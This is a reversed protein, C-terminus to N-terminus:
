NLFEPVVKASAKTSLMSVLDYITVPGTESVLSLIKGTHVANAEDTRAPPESGSIIHELYTFVQQPNYLTARLATRPAASCTVTTGASSITLLLPKCLRRCPECLLQMSMKRRLHRPYSSIIRTATLPMFEMASLRCFEQLGTSRLPYAM